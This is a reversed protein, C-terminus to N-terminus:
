VLEPRRFPGTEAYASISSSEDSAQTMCGSVIGYMNYAVYDSDLDIWVISASGGDAM